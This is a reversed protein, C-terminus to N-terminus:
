VESLYLMSAATALLAIATAMAVGLFNNRNPKQVETTGVAPEAIVDREKVKALTEHTHDLDEVAVDIDLMEKLRDTVESLGEDSFQYDCVCVPGALKLPCYVRCPLYFLDTKNRDRSSDSGEEESIQLEELLMQIRTFVTSVVDKKLLKEALRAKPKNSHLFATGHIAGRVSISGECQQVVDTTRKDPTVLLQATFAQTVSRKQGTTLEADEPLKQGDILFAGKGIQNAWLMLQEKLQKTMSLTSTQSNPMPVLMSVNLSCSVKSWSSCVGSQYRWDAPKAMSKQDRIDVTRCIVKRTKPNIHLTVRDTIDEDALDCLHESSILNEVAFVLYQLTTVADKADNEDIIFFGLVSLGGPLMRSVQRAHETVWEKDLSNRHAATSEEKEPTRIAMVVFNRQVSSQGILLGSVPCANQGCLESLYGEVADEVIYGRGM